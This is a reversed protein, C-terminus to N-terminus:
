GPSCSRIMSGLLHSQVPMVKHSMGLLMHVRDLLERETFPKLLVLEPSRRSIGQMAVSDVYGSIYLITLGPYERGLEAALDLGNTGPLVMDIIALDIEDAHQQVISLGQDATSAEFTAIGDWILYEVILGRLGAEDDVVLVKPHRGNCESMSAEM